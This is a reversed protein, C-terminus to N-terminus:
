PVWGEERADLMCSEIAVALKHGFAYHHHAVPSPISKGVTFLWPSHPVVRWKGSEPNFYESLAPWKEALYDLGLVIIYRHEEFSSNLVHNSNVILLKLNSEGFFFINYVFSM